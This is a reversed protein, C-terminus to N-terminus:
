SDFQVSCISCKSRFGFLRLFPISFSPCDAAGVKFCPWCVPPHRRPGPSQGGRRLLLLLLAASAACSGTFCCQAQLSTSRTFIYAGASLRQRVSHGLRGPLCSDCSPELQRRLRSGFTCTRSLPTHLGSLKHDSYFGKSGSSGLQTFCLQAAAALCSPLQRCSRRMGPQCDVFACHGLGVSHVYRRNCSLSVLKVVQWVIKQMCSGRGTYRSSRPAAFCYVSMAQLVVVCVVWKCVSVGTVAAAVVARAIACGHVEAPINVRIM